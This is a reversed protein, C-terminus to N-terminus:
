AKGLKVTLLHNVELENYIFIFAASGYCGAVVYLTDGFINASNSSDHVTWCKLQFLFKYGTKFYLFAFIQHSIQPLSRSM